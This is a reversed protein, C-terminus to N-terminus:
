EKDRHEGSSPAPSPNGAGESSNMTKKALTAKFRLKYAIRDAERQAQSWEASNANIQYEALTNKATVEDLTKAVMLWMLGDVRRTRDEVGTNYLLRGLNAMAKSDGQEAGKRYWGEAADDDGSGGRANVLMFAYANQAAPLGAEAASKLLTRAKEDDQGVGEIIDGHLLALGLRERAEPVGAEAAKNLWPVAAAPDKKVGQGSILVSAYNLQSRPSGGEAGRKFYDAAKAEDKPVEIGQSYFYGLGGEADASGEEAAKQMLKFAEANNRGILARAEHFLKASANESESPQAAGLTQSVLLITAGLVHFINM